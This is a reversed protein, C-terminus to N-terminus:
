GNYIHGRSTSITSFRLQIRSIFKKNISLKCYLLAFEISSCCCVLTVVLNEMPVIMNELMVTSAELLFLMIAVTISKQQPPLYPVNTTCEYVTISIAMTVNICRKM